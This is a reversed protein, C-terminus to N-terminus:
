KIVEPAEHGFTLRVKHFKPPPTDASAAQEEPLYGIFQLTLGTDTWRLRKASKIKSDAPYQGQGLEVLSFKEDNFNIVAYGQVGYHPPQVARVIVLYGQQNAIIDPCGVREDRIGDSLTRGGPANPSRPERYIYKSGVMITQRYDTSAGKRCEFRGKPTDAWASGDQLDNGFTAGFSREAGLTLTAVSAGLILAKSWDVTM